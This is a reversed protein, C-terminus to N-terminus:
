NNKEDLEEVWTLTRIAVKSEENLRDFAELDLEISKKMQGGDIKGNTLGKLLENTNDFMKKRDDESYYALVDALIREALSDYNNYFKTWMEKEKKISDKKIKM